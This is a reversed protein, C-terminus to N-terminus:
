SANRTAFTTYDAGKQVRGDTLQVVQDGFMAVDAADHTILVMPIDLRSQLDSLERRMRERMHADLAAFPEDLLLIRPKTVLARALAVRQRQGGSLQAPLNGACHSLEFADIWYDVEARTERASPNFWGGRLAFGINQRVNLHPFLAYDQFLYAARRERTPVDIARAADFLPQGGLSISGRDPRMLGAIAQLTLTKGAGSPGFLVIRQCTAAFSVTLTFRRERTVLTKRIDVLLTM